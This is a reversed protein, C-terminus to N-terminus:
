QCLAARELVLVLIVSAMWMFDASTMAVPASTRQM